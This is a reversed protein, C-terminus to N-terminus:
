RQKGEVLLVEGCLFVRLVGVLAHLGLEHLRSPVLLLHLRLVLLQEVRVRVGHLPLGVLPVLLLHIVPHRSLIREPLYRCQKGEVM